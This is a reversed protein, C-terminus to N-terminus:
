ILRSESRNRFLNKVAEKGLSQNVNLYTKQKHMLVFSSNNRHKHSERITSVINSAVPPKELTELNFPAALSTNLLSSNNSGSTVRKLNLSINIKTPVVKQDSQQMDIASYYEIDNGPGHTSFGAKKISNGPFLLRSQVYFVDKNVRSTTDEILSDNPSLGNPLCPSELTKQRNENTNMRRSTLSILGPSEPERISSRNSQLRFTSQSRTIKMSKMHINIIQSESLKPLLVSSDTRTQEIEKVRNKRKRDKETNKTTFEKLIPFLDQLSPGNRLLHKSTKENSKIIRSIKSIEDQIEEKRHEEVDARAGRLIKKRTDEDQGFQHFKMTPVSSSREKAPNPVADSSSKKDATAIYNLFVQPTKKEPSTQRINPLISSHAVEVNRSIRPSQTKRPSHVIKPSPSLETDQQTNNSPKETPIAIIQDLFSEQYADNSSKRPSKKSPAQRVFVPQDAM